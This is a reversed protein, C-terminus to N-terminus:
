NLGEIFQKKIFFGSFFKDLNKTVHAILSQLDGISVVSAFVIRHVGHLYKKNVVFVSIFEWTLEFLFDQHFNMLITLSTPL